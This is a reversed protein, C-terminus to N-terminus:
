NGTTIEEMKEDLTKCIKAWELLEKYIEDLIEKPRIAYMDSGDIGTIAKVVAKIVAIDARGEAIIGIRM